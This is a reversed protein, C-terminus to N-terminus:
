WGAPGGSAGQARGGACLVIRGPRCDPPGPRLPGGGRGRCQAAACSCPVQLCCIGTLSWRSTPNVSAPSPAPMSFAGGQEPLLQLQVTGAAPTSDKTHMLCGARVCECRVPHQLLARQVLRHLGLLGCCAASCARVMRNQADGHVSQWGRFCGAADHHQMLQSM